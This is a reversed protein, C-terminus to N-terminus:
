TPLGSEVSSPASHCRCDNVMTRTYTGYLEDVVDEWRWTLARARAGRGLRMRLAPDCALMVGADVFEDETRAVWGSIDHQVVFAPGGQSMALVTVGSAMAELVALGFTESPSPFAFLDLSAYARALDDGSLVGLFVADPITRELWHREVGDGIFVFRSAVGRARLAGHLTALLRVRKEASLRGVFGIRVAGGEERSQAPSFMRADVGHKMLETPRGTRLALLDVLDQNPALLARPIRYFQLTAALALREIRDLARRRWGSPLWRCWKASRLAAYQHLNTHWSGVMPVHLRHGLLAGLQGVDSPGTLHLVDPRFEALATRVRRYHRWLLPDFSLDHDLAFAAGSRRLELRQVSGADIARTTQGGHVLLFPLGRETACTELARTLRAIGNAEAYSDTFFAVRLPDTRSV